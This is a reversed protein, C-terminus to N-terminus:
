TSDAAGHNCAHQAAHAVKTDDFCARGLPVQHFGRTAQNLGTSLVAQNTGVIILASPEYM